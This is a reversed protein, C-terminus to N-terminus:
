RIKEIKKLYYKKTTHDILKLYYIGNQWNSSDITNMTNNLVGNDMIKGDSSYVIFNLSRQFNHDIFINETSPNPYVKINFNKLENISTSIPTEQVQKSEANISANTQTDLILAIVKLNEVIFEDPITYEISYNYPLGKEITSALSNMNGLYPTIMARLVKDYVVESAPIEQPLNIWKTMDINYTNEAGSFNNEQNFEESEGIINDETLFLAIKFRDNKNDLDIISEIKTNIILQRTENFHQINLDLSFPNAHLKSLEPVFSTYELPNLFDVSRDFSINPYGRINIEYSGISNETKMELIDKEHVAIGVYEDGYISDMQEFMAFGSPCWGCWIAAAEEILIKKDISNELFQFSVTFNDLVSEDENDIVELFFEQVPNDTIWDQPISIDQYLTEEPKIDFRFSPIFLRKEEKDSNPYLLFHVPAMDIGSENTISIPLIYFSLDSFPEKNIFPYSKDSFSLTDKVLDEVTEVKINDIRLKSINKPTDHIFAIYITENIFSDLLISYSEINKGATGVRYRDMLIYDFSEKSSDTTSILVKFFDWGNYTSTEADWKLITNSKTINLAPTILWNETKIQSDEFSEVRGWTYSEASYDDFTEKKVALFNRDIEWTGVLEGSSDLLSDGDFVTMAGFSGSEFDEEFIIQGNMLPLTVFFFLFYTFVKMSSFNNM